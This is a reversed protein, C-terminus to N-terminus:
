KRWVLAVIPFFFWIAGDRRHAEVGLRDTGGEIDQQFLARVKDDDGPNPFSAQLLGELDCELRYDAKRLLTLNAETGLTEFEVETLARTHSPDRFKEAEDYADRASPRPAVDIVMVIGSPKCVRKMELLAATPDIYHHFSFRTVVQDFADDPFPLAMASGQKWEINALGQNKQTVKARELMAPVMDLGTVQAARQAFACSVLGPGCAIDLVRDQPDVGSTEVLLQLLEGDSAGHREAFPIAQKTFQDLIDADHQSATNM